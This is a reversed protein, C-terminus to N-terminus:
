YLKTYALGESKCKRKFFFAIYVAKWKHLNHTSNKDNKQWRSFRIITRSFYIFNCIKPASSINKAHYDTCRFAENSSDFVGM